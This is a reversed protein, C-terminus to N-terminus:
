VDALVLVLRFGVVTGGRIEMLVRRIPVNSIGMRHDHMPPLCIRWVLQLNWWIPTRPQLRQYYTTTTKSGTSLKTTQEGFIFKCCSPLLNKQMHITKMWMFFKVLADNTSLLFDRGSPTVIMMLEYQM